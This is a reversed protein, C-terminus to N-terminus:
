GQKFIIKSVKLASTYIEINPIQFFQFLSNFMFVHYIKLNYGKIKISVWYDLSHNITYYTFCHKCLLLRPNPGQRELRDRLDRFSCDRLASDSNLGSYWWTYDGARYDGWFNPM